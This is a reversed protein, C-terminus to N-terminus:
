ESSEEEVQYLGSKLMQNLLILEILIQQLNGKTLSQLLDQVSVESYESHPM